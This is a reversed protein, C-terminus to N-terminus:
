RRPAGRGVRPILGHWTLNLAIMLTVTDSCSSLSYPRGANRSDDPGKCSECGSSGTAHRSISMSPVSTIGPISSEKNRNMSIFVRQRSFGEANYGNAERAVFQDVARVVQPGLQRRPQQSHRPSLEVQVGLKSLGQCSECGAVPVWSSGRRGPGSQKPASAQAVFTSEQKNDSRPMLSGTLWFMYRATGPVTFLRRYPAGLSPPRCSCLMRAFWSTRQLPEAM